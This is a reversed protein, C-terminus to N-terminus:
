RIGWLTKFDNLLALYQAEITIKLQDAMNQVTQDDTIVIQRDKPDGVLIAKRVSKEAAKYDKVLSEIEQMIQYSQRMKGIDQLAM